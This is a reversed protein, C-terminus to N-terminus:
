IWYVSACLRFLPVCFLLYSVYCCCCCCFCILNHSCHSRSLGIACNNCANISCQSCEFQFLSFFLRTCLTRTFNFSNNRKTKNKAKAEKRKKPLANKSSGNKQNRRDHEKNIEVENWHPLLLSKNVWDFTTFEITFQACCVCKSNLKSICDFIRQLM